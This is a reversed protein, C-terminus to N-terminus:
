SITFEGHLGKTYDDNPADGDTSVYAYNGAPLSWELYATGGPAVSEVGGVLVGPAEGEAKGTNFLGDFYTKAADLTGPTNLKLLQFSHSTTGDNTIKATLNKPAEGSPVTITTDSLTVDAVGDTPPKLNSKGSVDFIKFMGHAAHPSGDPAPVFCAIGYRGAALQTITTTKQGPGVLAPTGNVDGPAAIKGFEADDNSLIAKKLQAPTVGKKLKFFAMMHNEVGSNDFNIQTWGAKPSGKLQYVYEGAKVTLTNSGAASATPAM